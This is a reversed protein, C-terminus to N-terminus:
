WRRSRRRAAPTMLPNVATTSGAATSRRGPGVVALRPRSPPQEAMAHLNLLTALSVCLQLEGRIHFTHQKSFIVRHLSAARPPAVTNGCQFWHLM